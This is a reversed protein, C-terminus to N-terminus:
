GIEEACIDFDRSWGVDHNVLWQETPRPYGTAYDSNDAVNPQLNALSRTGLDQVYNAATGTSPVTGYASEKLKSRWFKAQRIHQPTPMNIRRRLFLSSILSYLNSFRGGM